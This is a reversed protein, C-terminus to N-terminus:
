EPWEARDGNSLFMSIHRVYGCVKENKAFWGYVKACFM